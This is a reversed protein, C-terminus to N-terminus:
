ALAEDPPGCVAEAIRTLQTELTADVDGGTTEVLCGGPTV